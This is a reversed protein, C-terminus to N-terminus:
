QGQTDMVNTLDAEEGNEIMMLLCDAHGNAAPLSCCICFYADSKRPTKVVNNVCPVPHKVRPHTQSGELYFRFCYLVQLM